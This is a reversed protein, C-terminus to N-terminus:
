VAITRTAAADFWHEITNDGPGGRDIVLFQHVPLLALVPHHWCHRRYNIGQRGGARFCRLTALDPTADGQAVVVLWHADELPFFAQSGLPHHELMRIAIPRPRAKARFISVIPMGGGTAVDIAALDHFRETTDENILRREAGDVEIVDGFPAFAVRTLPEVALPTM